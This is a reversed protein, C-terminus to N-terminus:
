TVPPAMALYGRRFPHFVEAAGEYPAEKPCGANRNRDEDDAVNCNACVPLPSDEIMWEGCFRPDEILSALWDEHAEWIRVASVVSFAGTDGVWHKRGRTKPGTMNDIGSITDVCECRKTSNVNDGLPPVGDLRTCM